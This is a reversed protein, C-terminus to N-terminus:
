YLPEAPHLRIHSTSACSCTGLFLWVSWALWIDRTQQRGRCCCLNPGCLVRQVISISILRHCGHPFFIIVQRLRDLGVNLSVKDWQHKAYAIKVNPNLAEFGTVWWYWWLHFPIFMGLCIFYIDTDKIKHCWKVVNELAKQITDSVKSFWPLKAMNEWLKQLFELVPIMQWISPNCSSSFTQTASAPEQWQQWYVFFIFCTALRLSSGTSGWANIKTKGLGKQRTSFRCLVERQPESCRQQQWRAWCFSQHGVM